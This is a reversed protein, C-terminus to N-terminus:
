VIDKIKTLDFKRYTFSAVGTHYEIDDQETTFELAGLSTPYIDEFKVLINPVEDSTNITLSADSFVNEKQIGKGAPNFNPRNTLERRQRFDDPFGLGVLWNYIELYNNMNEDIKFEVELDGFTLKDGAVPIKSLPNQTDVSGLTIDPINVRTTFFEVNPLRKINFDFSLSSLLNANKPEPM